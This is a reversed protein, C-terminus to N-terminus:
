DVPTALPAGERVLLAVTIVVPEDGLNQGYHVLQENEVVSDGAGLEITVPGTHQETTGDARTVLATGVEIVLTLTGRRIHAIQTGEHLHKQLTVGAPITVEQLHLQQGPANAPLGTALSVRSAVGPGDTAAGGSACGVVLVTAALLAARRPLSGRRRLARVQPTSRCSQHDSLRQDM